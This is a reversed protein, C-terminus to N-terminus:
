ALAQNKTRLLTMVLEYEDPQEPLMNLWQLALFETMGHEVAKTAGLVPARNVGLLLGAGRCEIMAHGYPACKQCTQYGNLVPITLVQYGYVLPRHTSGLGYLFAM